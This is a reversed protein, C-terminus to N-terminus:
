VVSKRDLDFIDTEREELLTELADLGFKAKYELENQAIPVALM